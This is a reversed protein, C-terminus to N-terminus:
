EEEEIQDIEAGGQLELGQLEAELANLEAELELDDMEADKEDSQQQLYSKLEEIAETDQQIRSRVREREGEPFINIVNEVGKSSSELANVIGDHAEQPADGLVDLLITQHKMVANSIREALEGAREHTRIKELAMVAKNIRDQYRNAARNLADEGVNEIGAMARFESLREQARELAREVKREPDLVFFDSIKEAIREFIYLPNNPLTGPDPLEDEALVSKPLLFGAFLMIILVQLAFNRMFIKNKM